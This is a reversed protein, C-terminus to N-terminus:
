RKRMGDKVELVTVRNEIKGIKEDIENVKNRLEPFDKNLLDDLKPKTKTIFSWVGSLLRIGTGGLIVTISGLLIQDFIPDKMDFILYIFISYILLVIGTSFISEKSMKLIEHINKVLSPLLILVLGFLYFIIFLIYAIM